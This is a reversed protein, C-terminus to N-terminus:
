VRTQTEEIKNCGNELQHIGMGNTYEIVRVLVALHYKM